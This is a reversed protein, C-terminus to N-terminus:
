TKKTDDVINMGAMARHGLEISAFPGGHHYDGVDHPDLPPNAAYVEKAFQEANDKPRYGM